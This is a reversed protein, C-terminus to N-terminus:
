EQGAYLKIRQKAAEETIAQHYLPGSLIKALQKLFHRRSPRSWGQECVFQYQRGYARAEQDVRFLPDRLFKGWWLIAGKESHDQQEMHVKEHEIIHDPLNQAIPTYIKDGYTFIATEANIGFAMCVADFVPPKGVIITVKEQEKTPILDSM